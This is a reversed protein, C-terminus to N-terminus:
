YYNNYEEDMINEPHLGIMPYLYGAHTQCVQLLRSTDKLCIGPVLIKKIGADQARQIVEELDEAFESGDIHSHTDIM